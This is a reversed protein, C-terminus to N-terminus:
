IIKVTATRALGDLTTAVLDLLGREFGQKTKGGNFQVYTNIANLVETAKEVTIEENNAMAVIEQRKETLIREKELADRNTRDQTSLTREVRSSEM